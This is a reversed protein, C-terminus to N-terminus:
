SADNPPEESTTSTQPERPQLALRPHDTLARIRRAITALVAAAREGLAPQAVEYRDVWIELWLHAVDTLTMQGHTPRHGDSPASPESQTSEALLRRALTPCDPIAYTACHPHFAPEGTRISVHGSQQLRVIDRPLLFVMPSMLAGGCLQCLRGTVCEELKAPDRAGFLHAGDPRRPTVYPVPFGAYIPLADIRRIPGTM